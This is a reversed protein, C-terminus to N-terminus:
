FHSNSTKRIHGQFRLDRTVAHTARLLVRRALIKYLALFLDLNAARDGIITVAVLYSFCHEQLYLCVFLM